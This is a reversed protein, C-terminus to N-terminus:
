RRQRITKQRVGLRVRSIPTLIGLEVGFLQTGAVGM